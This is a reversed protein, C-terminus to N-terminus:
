MMKVFIDLLTQGKQKFKLHIVAFNRADLFKPDKRYAVSIKLLVVLICPGTAMEDLM